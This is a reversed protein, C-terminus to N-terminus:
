QLCVMIQLFRLQSSSAQITHFAWMCGTTNNEATVSPIMDLANVFL